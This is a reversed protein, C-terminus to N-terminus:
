GKNQLMHIIHGGYTGRHGRIIRLNPDHQGWVDDLQLFGQHQMHLPSLPVSLDASANVHFVQSKVRM